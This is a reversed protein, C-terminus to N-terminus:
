GNLESLPKIQAEYTAWNTAAKYADVSADPAYIYGTGSAIPTNNFVYIDALTPPTTAEIVVTSLSTCGNFAGTQIDILTSPLIAKSLNTCGYFTGVRNYGYITSITGLSSISKIGSNAFAQSNTSGGLTTLNPLNVDINMAQCNYFSRSSISTISDPLNISSLSTCGNFVGSGIETLSSPLVVRKLSTCNTFIGLFNYGNLVTIRGLSLVNEIGSAAFVGAFQNNSGHLTELSPLIVDGVIGSCNMFARGGLTKLNPLSVGDISLSTCNYFAGRSITHINNPFTLSLLSSCGSFADTDVISVGTFQELEEFSSIETNDKFWTGITTVKEADALTIGVGDSSVGNAILVRLVEPDAFEIYKVGSVGM